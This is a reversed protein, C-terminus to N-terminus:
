PSKSTKVPQFNANQPNFAQQLQEPTLANKWDGSFGVENKSYASAAGVAYGRRLAKLYPKVATRGSDEFTQLAYLSTVAGTIKDYLKSSLPPCVRYQLSQKNFVMDHQIECDFNTRSTTFVITPVSTVQYTDFMRPDISIDASSGKGYILTELDHLIFHGVTMGPPVGRFELTGGDWMAELAYQRLMNLPMSWSVFYYLATNSSPNIGLGKLATNHAAELQKNAIQDALRHADTQLGKMAPLNHMNQYDNLLSESLSQGIEIGQERIKPNVGDLIFGSEPKTKPVTQSFACGYATLLALCILLKKMHVADILSHRAHLM